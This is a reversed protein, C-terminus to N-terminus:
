AIKQYIEEIKANNFGVLPRLVLLNSKYLRDFLQKKHNEGIVVSQIGNNNKQIKLKRGIHWKKLIRSNKNLTLECGKKMILWAAVIDQKNEIIGFVRGATGLPFGGPGIIKKTFIYTKKSKCEIFIEKDPKSLNVKVKLKKRIVDGVEEAIRQSNFIHKGSRRVRIAFTKFKFKKAIKLSLKKIDNLNSDCVYAPSFSTIGFIRKLINETKKINKTYIFIRNHGKEIRDKIVSNINNLLIKNFRKQVQKSKLAQEGVRILLCDPKM